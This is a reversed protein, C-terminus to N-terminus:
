NLISLIKYNYVKVTHNGPKNVINFDQLSTGVKYTDSNTDTVYYDTIHCTQGKGCSQTYQNISGSTVNITKTVSNDNEIIPTM